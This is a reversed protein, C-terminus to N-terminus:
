RFFEEKNRKILSKKKFSFNPHDGVLPVDNGHPWDETQWVIQRLTGKPTEYEKFLLPYREDTIERWTRTTVDPHYRSPASLSVTDDIGFALFKDVREFESNYKLQPPPEWGFIKLVLPVHDAEKHNIALLMRELSSLTSKLSM